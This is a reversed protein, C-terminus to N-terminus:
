AKPAEAAKAPKVKAKTTEWWSTATTKAKAYADTVSAKPKAFFAKVGDATTFGRTIIQRTIEAAKGAYGEIMAARTDVTADSM